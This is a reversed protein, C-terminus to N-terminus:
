VQLSTGPLSFMQWGGADPRCYRKAPIRSLTFASAKNKYADYIIKNVMKVLLSDKETVKYLDLDLDPEETEEAMMDMM